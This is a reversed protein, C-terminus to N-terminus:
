PALVLTTVSTAPLDIKFTNQGTAMYTPGAALAGAGATMRYSRGQSLTTGHNISIAAIRSHDTKNIAVLIMRDNQGDNLSAYISTGAVDSTTASISTDGFRGDAGDYNTYADFAANVFDMGQPDGWRTAAFVDERGFIGLVDAEAVGGSIHNGAGYDYETIALRTGPYHAAIKQKMRPLLRIPGVGADVAIWSQETYSPDWLSRPAQMRAEAVGPSTSAETIRVGGSTVEPYWHLDLVDVLRHGASRGAARLQDLYFNLFDRGHGDPADQLTVFGYWGYSVPGFILAKPAVDKIASATAITRSLLEAYTVPGNPRIRPHTYAWLDPENDLCYFITRSPDTRANPFEGELWWVLEDQYVVSDSTDPPYAFPRGKRPLSAHFRTHLYNPSNGVDGDGNKDAAVYGAMPVTVVMSAGAARADAVRQRVAEGPTNGGGLYNDNQNYWDTGANSANNEWNYATLRNGGFRGLTLHSQRGQWDAQNAGYIYPSIAHRAASSDIAFTVDANGSPTQDQTVDGFGGGGCGGSMLAAVLLVGAFGLPAGM